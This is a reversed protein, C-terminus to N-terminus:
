SAIGCDVHEGVARDFVSRTSYVSPKTLMGRPFSDEVDVVFEVEVRM